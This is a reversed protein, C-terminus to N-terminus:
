LRGWGMSWSGDDDADQDADALLAADAYSTLSEPDYGPRVPHGLRRLEDESPPSDDYFGVVRGEGDRHLVLRGADVLRQVHDASLGSAACFDDVRIWGSHAM